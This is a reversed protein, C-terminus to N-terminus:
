ISRRRQYVNVLLGGIILLIGGLLWNYLNTATSPLSGGISSKEPEEKNAAKSISKESVPDNNNTPTDPLQDKVPNETDQGGQNNTPNDPRSPSEPSEPKEPKTGEGNNDPDPITPNVKEGKTFTWINSVTSGTYGDEAVAYWSYTKNEELGKWVTEAIEGSQVNKDKGIVTDTYINVSFYDTAVRKDVPQLDLEIVFEDKGPYVDPDYYNYDDLYPSYTNVMIKNNDQDFHLLKMYGQGGEPGAQYDALMQYVKRDPTGDQNDDIEDVLTQAEHYHGSLVAIVNENPVVIENFLQEGLPHRTGTSLLYEHFNLIAKRDPHAALVDNVWAIGEATVGWGLYVMIYDNGGASILDYHGRNNLYSEGYYPKSQFRDEGFYQYYNTYDNTIQNVDHNGALVGYPIENDDLVKMYNDANQWQFEETSKNVLDGTHMVYKIKLEEQKEAIWQTQRDYIYPFSESYYQTDSMWVFTYDYEDPSSPIEDQVLVNIKSDKMFENVAVEGTLDFDEKGAIKYDILSWDNTTHNWAYMSVKRGELSNGSWVLEVRDNEDVSPDVTVDFRHYPFQTSSDTILYNEDQKSVLSIDDSTFAAEGEPAMTRPPETDSANKFAKVQNSQSVDYQYGQYFTVDVEDKTPDTVKVKLTPDGKVPMQTDDSPSVVEPKSPNENVVSFHVITEARNGVKDIAIVTLKHEGSSLKGSSTAYPVEIEQDDLIIQVDEVGAIQDSIDVDIDFAGKYEKGEIITTEIVPATNDVLITSSVEEDSDKVKIIHEGDSVSTTNWKYTKSKAYKDTIDFKFDVFPNDDHMALVKSSDSYSPDKIVTGDALVLRVNRLDYNDRNEASELDFPSAKNGSRITITNEGLQLREPEIPISFTKWSSLWDDDMLYLVEDGITVANKFYTNLGNVEFAFYAVQEVSHYLGETLETDDVYLNVNEPSDSQSTGKLAKEGTLIDNDKVNLRLSSTDIDSTIKIQYTESRVENTGDSAVFYYEVQENGILDPSPITHHYLLDDYDEKVIVDKYETQNDIKYFFRVTKVEKDDKINAVLNINDKQNIESVNTLNEITPAVTDEEIHVPQGPVQFSEVAGPTADEVGIKILQTSKDVPYKYVIGKDQFSDDVNTEDNYYSVSIEKGTNTAVVLGRMSGNAMGASYIKVIDQNEVLSTRYHANFDAVTQSENQGNIIWFVLTEGAPILVDDPVSAWIVDSSPDSGYRYNMKYDKFNMAKDTNNYIEIFEYGDATGVNTSDPVVETVLFQPIKEYNVDIKEVVITYEETKDSNTGDTAEIYYILDSQVSTSPIEASYISPDEASPNMSLSTFTDAGEEKFYLTVLPVALNDTITAEVKVPSVSNSDTIPAHTIKPAETDEVEDPLTVPTTPVQVPEVEGPSPAALGKYKAMETGSSPFKYHIDAGNNDNDEGLYTASIVEKGENSKLVIARNGGNSFGPFGDKFEVVQNSTLNKGFNANFDALARDGNNFWLVTTEQPELTDAPVQFIREEGTDTYRYIFSYNTLSLPQNTNNYLEIFEYYDTGGGQSNPSLETILLPLESFTEEQTNEITVTVVEGSSPHTSRNNKDTVEIYYHVSESTLADNTITAEYSTGSLQNMPLAVFESDTETNYYLTAKIDDHDDSLTAQIKLDEGAKISTVPTHEIIPANNEPMAVPESPVQAAEVTGLTPAAKNEHKVMEIGGIPSSYHVVLGEGIDEGLYSAMVIESNKDSIVVGRDGGNAFGPAGSYEVIEDAPLNVGHHSNFEEFTKNKLNLWFIITEKSGLTVPEFEMEVDQKGSGDLYRLAFTYHDLVVPKDSNNYVEFYEFQETGTNDPMIETILLEPLNAMQAETMETTPEAEVVPEATEAQPATEEVVPTETKPEVSQTVPDTSEVETSPNGSSQETETTPLKEETPATQTDSTNQQNDTPPVESTSEQTEVVEQQAPVANEEPVSTTEQDGEVTTTSTSTSPEQNIEAYTVKSPILSLFNTLVLTLILLYILASKLKKQRM